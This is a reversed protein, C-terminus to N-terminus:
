EALDTARLHTQQVWVQQRGCRSGSALRQRVAQAGGAPRRATARSQAARCAAGQLASRRVRGQFGTEVRLKSVRGSGARGGARADM